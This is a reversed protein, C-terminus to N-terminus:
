DAPPAEETGGEAPADAAPATADAAPPTAAGETSGTAAPATADAAPPTASGETSGTTAPATDGAPVTTVTDAGFGGFIWSLLLIVVIIAVVIWVWRMASSGGRHDSTVKPDRYNKPDHTM